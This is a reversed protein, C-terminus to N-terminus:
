QGPLTTCPPRREKKKRRACAVADVPRLPKGGRLRRAFWRGGKEGGIQRPAMVKASPAEGRRKRKTHRVQTLITEGKKKEGALQLNRKKNKSRSIGEGKKEKGGGSRMCSISVKDRV